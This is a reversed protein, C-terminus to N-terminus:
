GEKKEETAVDKNAFKSKYYADLKEQNISKLFDEIAMNQTLEPDLKSYAEKAAESRVIAEALDEPANSLDVVQDSVNVKGLEAGELQLRRLYADIGVEGNQSNITQAIDRKEHVEKVEVIYDTEGEGTKKVVDHITVDDYYKDFDSRGKFTKKVAFGCKITKEM